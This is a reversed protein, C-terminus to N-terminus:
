EYLICLGPSSPILYGLLTTNPYVHKSLLSGFRSKPRKGKLAKLLKKREREGKPSM